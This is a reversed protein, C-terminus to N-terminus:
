KKKKNIRHARQKEISPDKMLQKYKPTECGLLALKGNRDIHIGWGWEKLLQSRTLRYSDLKLEGAKKKRRVIHVQHKLGEYTYKYPNNILEDYEIMVIADPKRSVPPTGKKHPSDASVMILQEIQSM